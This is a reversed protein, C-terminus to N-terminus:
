IKLRQGPKLRSTQLGNNKQISAVTTKFRKAITSLTDGAKVEYVIIKPAPTNIKVETTQVAPVEDAPKDYQYLKYKKIIAVVQSAWTGSRAYGAKQIGYVWKKYHSAGLKEFLPDLTSRRKMFSVFDEYSDDVSEYGKYASKIKTSSNAGKIGFHNNLNRAIKSNGSASEHIAIGLIISAPIGHEDMLRIAADKYSEVYKSAASQGFTIGSTFVLFVTILRKLM